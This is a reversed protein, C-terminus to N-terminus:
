ILLKDIIKYSNKTKLCWWMVKDLCPVVKEVPPLGQRWQWKNIGLGV